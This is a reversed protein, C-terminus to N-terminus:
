VLYFLKGNDKKVKDYGTLMHDEIINLEIEEEKCIKELIHQRKKAFISYDQTIYISEIPYKDCNRIIKKVTSEYDTSYFYFLRSGKEKLSNDLDELCEIM